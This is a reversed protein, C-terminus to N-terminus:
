PQPQKKKKKLKYSVKEFSAVPSTISYNRKDTVRIWKSYMYPKRKNSLMRFWNMSNLIM